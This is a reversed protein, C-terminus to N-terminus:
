AWLRWLWILAWHRVAHFIRHWGWAALAILVWPALICGWALLIRKAPSLAHEDRVIVRTYGHDRLVEALTPEPAYFNNRYPNVIKTM